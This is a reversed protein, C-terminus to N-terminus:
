RLKDMEAMVEPTLTDLNIEKKVNVTKREEDQYTFL